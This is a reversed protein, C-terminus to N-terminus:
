LDQFCCLVYIYLTLSIHKLTSGSTILPSQHQVVHCTYVALPVNWDLEKRKGQLKCDVSPPLYYAFLDM